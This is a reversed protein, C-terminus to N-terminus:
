SILELYIIPDLSHFDILYTLKEEVFRVFHFNLDTNKSIHKLWETHM